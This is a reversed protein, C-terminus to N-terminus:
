RCSFPALLHGTPRVGAPGWMGERPQLGPPARASGAHAYPVRTTRLLLSSHRMFAFTHTLSAVTSARRHCWHGHSVQFGSLKGTHPQVNSRTLGATPSPPPPPSVGLESRGGNRGPAPAQRPQEPSFIELRFIGFYSHYGANGEGLQTQPRLPGKDRFAALGQPPSPSPSPPVLSSTPERERLGARYARLGM